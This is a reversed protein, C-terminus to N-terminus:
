MPADAMWGYSPDGSVDAYASLLRTGAAFTDRDVRSLSFYTKNEEDM